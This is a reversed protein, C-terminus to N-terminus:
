PQKGRNLKLANNRLVRIQARAFAYLNNM